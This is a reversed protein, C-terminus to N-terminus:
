IHFSVREPGAVILAVEAAGFAVKFADDMESELHTSIVLLELRPGEKPRRDLLRLAEKPDFTLEELSTVLIVKASLSMRGKM